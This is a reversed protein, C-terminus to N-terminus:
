KHALGPRIALRERTRRRQEAIEPSGYMREMRAAAAADFRSM